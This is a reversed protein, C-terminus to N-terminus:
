SFSFYFLSPLSQPRVFYQGGENTREITRGNTPPEAAAAVEATRSTPPEAAATLRLMQDLRSMQDLRKAGQDFTAGRDFSKFCIQRNKKADSM